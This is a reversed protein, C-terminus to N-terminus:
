AGVFFFAIALLAYLGVLLLGEFWNTEGDVAVVNVALAAAIIAFLDLPDRFVLSIPHGILVSLVALLPLIVLGVQVASGVCIDAALGVRDARAFAVAAFLDAGTGVLALPIVGIFVPELGLARASGSLTGSVLEALIAALVTAGALVAVTRSLGWREGGDSKGGAAFVERHTVLTFLLNGAYLALLVSAVALGLTEETAHIRGADAAPRLRATIDFAAPLALAIVTLVLLGGLLSARERRMVQHTRTAGGAMMALGLGLLTTGLISGIMQARVIDPHGRRLIFIALVFEALSGLTVNLLGGLATGVRSALQDTARRIWDALVAIALAGLLFALPAPAAPVLGAALGVPVLALPLARLLSGRTM